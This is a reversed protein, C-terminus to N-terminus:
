HRILVHSHFVQWVLPFSQLEYRCPERDGGCLLVACTSSERRTLFLQAKLAKQRIGLPSLYFLRGGGWVRTSLLPRRPALM